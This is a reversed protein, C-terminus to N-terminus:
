HTFDIDTRYGCVPFSPYHLCQSAHGDVLGVKIPHKVAHAATLRSTERILSPKGLRAEVYRAVVGTGFKAAYVGVALMTLGAAQWVSVCWLKICLKYM